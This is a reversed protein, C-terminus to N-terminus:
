GRRLTVTTRLTRTNPLVPGVDEMNKAEQYDSATVVVHAKGPRLKATPISLVGNGYAFQTLAGNMRVHLSLPDVGSGTDRVTFRIAHGVLATHTLRRISPPSTDNVWFRFSFAGPKRHTPTDFVFDYVGPDPLVAGVVPEARGFAQYPNLNAPIGTYGVLRNEDDDAVLRPSVRVGRAHGLIAVGFNAVRRRLTFQFVQEPGGLRTPVGPALAREPYRYTSVRSPQGATNGRYVGPRRLTRRRDLGLRPVDVHFWFAVRRVASGRTLVVFGTADGAKAKRSVTLRVSLTKGAVLTSALPTLVAGKPMSEADVSVSWPASGGGADTTTLRLTRFFGRRVLGWGLSTPDTFLLPQDARALDVRGGGARLTSVRGSRGAPHVPDGTSALASKVQVVTWTPHRQLLLAAGGSVHPTAMSTGDWAEWGNPPISSLVDVGPATVDPKLLLSIPTPGSSSFSAVVDPRTRNEGLTSAGVTIAAPANAPSGVSGFGAVDFDNEAAVVPVVGAAAANDLACVVIDRSPEVEPEGISLNIVNMGDAVAQDIAKAIEPSNGDLGFGSTPVTLAKYNGLYANPAVGSVIAGGEDTQTDVDGAAIGAVHTAHDSYVPDFPKAANKWHTSPSPYARAVIVKPTTYATNGKPFGAPYSYGSPNFYPHAQDIGDDIIGIKMGQGATARSSGWLNTAGILTPARNVEAASASAGSSDRLSHYTISPWVTAGPV